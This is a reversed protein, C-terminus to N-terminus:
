NWNKEFDWVLKKELETKWVSENQVKQSAGCDKSQRDEKHQLPNIAECPIM